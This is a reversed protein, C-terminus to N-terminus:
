RRLPWPWVTGRDLIEVIRLNVNKVHFNSTKCRVVIMAEAFIGLRKRLGPNPQAAKLYKTGQEKGNQQVFERHELEACADAFYTARSDPIIFSSLAIEVIRDASSNRPREGEAQWRM